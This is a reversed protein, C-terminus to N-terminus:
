PNITVLTPVDATFTAADTSDSTGDYSVTEIAGAISAPLNAGNWLVHVVRGDPMEFGGRLWNSDDESFKLGAARLKAPLSM